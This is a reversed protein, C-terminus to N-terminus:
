TIRIIMSRNLQLSYYSCRLKITVHNNMRMFSVFVLHYVLSTVSGQDMIALQVNEVIPFFVKLYKGSHLPFFFWIEDEGFITLFLNWCYAAWSFVRQKVNRAYSQCTDHTLKWPGRKAPWRAQWRYPTAASICVQASWVVASRSVGVDRYQTAPAKLQISLHCM